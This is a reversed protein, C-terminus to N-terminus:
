RLSDSKLRRFDSGDRLLRYWATFFVMSSSAVLGRCLLRRAFLKRAKLSWFSLLDELSIRFLASRSRVPNEPIVTWGPVLNGDKGDGPM